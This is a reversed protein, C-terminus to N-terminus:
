KLIPTTSQIARALQSAHRGQEIRKHASEELERKEAFSMKNVRERAKDAAKCLKRLQDSTLMNLHDWALQYDAVKYYLLTLLGQCAHVAVRYQCVFQSRNADM